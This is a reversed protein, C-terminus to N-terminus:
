KVDLIFPQHGKRENEPPLEMYEGYHNTLYKHLNNACPVAIGEFNILKLPYLTNKEMYETMYKPFLLCGKCNTDINNYRCMEKHLSEYLWEKPIIKLIIHVSKRLVNKIRDYFSIPRSTMDPTTAITYIKHKLQVIKFQKRREYEDDPINDYPFIDIYIGKHMNVNRNCWEVFKTGNYRVKAYSFTSESDTYITQLFYNAELIEPAISIFKNYNERTMGIDIDDDWPIFGGHRKAGLATGGIIFFEINEIRCIRGVEKLIDLEIEQIRKLKKSDYYM